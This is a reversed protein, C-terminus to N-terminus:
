RTCPIYTKLFTSKPLVYRDNGNEMFIFHIEDTKYNVFIVKVTLPSLSDRDDVFIFRDGPKISVNPETSVETKVKKYGLLLIKLKNNLLLYFLISYLVLFVLHLIDFSNILEPILKTILLTTFITIFVVIIVKVINM